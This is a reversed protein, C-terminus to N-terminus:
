DDQLDPRILSYRMAKEFDSVGIQRGGAAVRVIRNVLMKLQRVNGTLAGSQCLEIIRERLDDSFPADMGAKEAARSYGIFYDLLVEHEDVRDKLEPLDLTLGDIRHLFDERMEVEDQNRLNKHGSESALLRVLETKGTGPQGYILINVGKTGVNVCAHVYKSLLDYDEQIHDYDKMCLRPASSPYFFTNLISSVDKHELLLIDQLGELLSLKEQLPYRNKTEYRLLGSAMLPSGTHLTRVVESRPIGMIVTLAKILCGGDFIGLLGYADSLTSDVNWM